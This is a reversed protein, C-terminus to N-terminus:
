KNEAFFPQKKAGPKFKPRKKAGPKFNSRKKDGPTFNKPKFSPFKKTRPDANSSGKKSTKKKTPAFGEIEEVEFPHGTFREIRKVLPADIGAAFSLAKGVAGARGTRGIRHVYDESNRPLDFNIVHTISQVDIGRAAVDTAVLIKLKGNKLQAITRNRQRQNQDGHLAGASHGKEHLEKALRDAHIKTSTFIIASELDDQQLIHDLLRNKHGLDDVYHLTQKINEHKAKEADVAIDIPNRLLEESLKLVSGRMTASFLLTQREKPTAAAIKKVPEVFGMDLMRDAEDLVLIELRSFEVKRREMFDILRGPTAILVDYPKSLQRIQAHYPVGGGICVSKIGPLYKSYKESQTAIQMALERTPALVLVRPGLGKKAPMSALLHLAPLLFAATKGTGTQASARIDAGKIVKGISEAQIKTPQTYGAEHLAKLIKPHLGQDDFSM